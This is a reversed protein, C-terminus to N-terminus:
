SHLEISTPTIVEKNGQRFTQGYLIVDAQGPLLMPRSRAGSVHRAIAEDITEGDFWCAPHIYSVGIVQGGDTMYLGGHSNCHEAIGVLRTQLAEAWPEIESDLDPLYQFDLEVIEDKILRLGGLEALVEYGPHDAPVQDSVSV